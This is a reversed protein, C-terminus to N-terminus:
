QDQPTDTAEATGASTDKAEGAAPAARRGRPRPAKGEAQASELLEAMKAKLLDQGVETQAIMGYMVEVSCPACLATTDGTEPQTMVIVAVTGDGSDCMYPQGM